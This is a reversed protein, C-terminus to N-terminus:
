CPASHTAANASSVFMVKTIDIDDQIALLVYQNMTFHIILELNTVFYYCFSNTIMSGIPADSHQM